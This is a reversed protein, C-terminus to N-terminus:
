AALVQTVPMSSDARLDLSSTAPRPPRGRGGARGGHSRQRHVPGTAAGAGHSRGRHRAGRHARAPSRQGCAAAWLSPTSARSRVPRVTKRTLVDCVADQFSAAVDAVAVTRGMREEHQVHRAVASKLGSFSFDYRHKELDRARTLGRPFAVATPTVTAHRATSTRGAPIRCALCGRSRTSCRRRTMSPPFRADHRRRRHRRRAPDRHPRRQRAACGGAPELRGHELQDVAVHAVLHNVGYLPKDHALALAKAAAVGVLLAGTLGPGCTVAIADVDQVRLGPKRMLRSWPRCWRRSTPGVRSRRCWVASVSTSTSAPRSLM